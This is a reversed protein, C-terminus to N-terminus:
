GKMQEVERQKKMQQKSEPIQTDCGGSFRTSEGRKKLFNKQWRGEQWHSGDRGMETEGRRNRHKERERFDEVGSLGFVGVLGQSRSHIVARQVRECLSLSAVWMCFFKKKSCKARFSDKCHVAALFERM